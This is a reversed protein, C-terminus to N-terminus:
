HLRSQQIVMDWQLHKPHSSNISHGSGLIYHLFVVHEQAEESGKFYQKLHVIM